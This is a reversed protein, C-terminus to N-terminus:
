TLLMCQTLDKQRQFFQAWYKSEPIFSPCVSLQSNFSYFKGWYQIELCCCYKHLLETFNQLIMPSQFIKKKFIWSNLMTLIVCQPMWHNTYIIWNNPFIFKQCVLGFSGSTKWIWYNNSCNIFSIVYWYDHM